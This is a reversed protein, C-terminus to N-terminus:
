HSLTLCDFSNGGTIQVVKLVHTGATLNVSVSTDGFTTISGTNTLTITGTLNNGSEDEVRVTKSTGAGGRFVLTYAKTTPVSVSYTTWEGAAIGGVYFGNSASNHATVGVGDNGRYISAAGASSTDSYAVNQGGYNYNEAEVLVSGSGAPIAWPSGSFPTNVLFTFKDIVALGQLKVTNTFGPNLPIGPILKDTYTTSDPFKPVGGPIPFATGNITLIPQPYGVGGSRFRYRVVLDCTGGLGGNVNNLTISATHNWNVAANASAKRDSLISSGTIVGDEAEYTNGTTSPTAPSAYSISSKGGANVATVTYYYTVGNDAETDNYITEFLSTAIISFGNNPQTSRRIQYYTTNANPAWQLFVNNNSPTANVQAVRAPAGTITPLSSIPATGALPITGDQAGTGSLLAVTSTGDLRWRHVGGHQNEDNLYLYTKGAGAVTMAPAFINGAAGMPIIEPCDNSTGFQGAFLGSEHFHMLQNAQSNNWFEGKYGFIINPGRSDHLAGRYQINASTDYSGDGHLPIQGPQAPSAKWNWSTTSLSLDIGGLHMGTGNSNDFFVLKNGSTITVRPGGQGNGSRPDVNLVGPATALTTAAAWQPNYSADFGTLWQQTFSNINNTVSQYRLSGDAYIFQATTEPTATARLPGTAPLEFVTRKNTTNNPALAYTRGNSLTAVSRLGEQTSRYNSPTGYSWNRVLTWSANNGELPLSYNVNFEFWKGRFCAFVRAPNNQDVTTTYHGQLYAIQDEYAPPAGATSSLQFRLMRCNMGDILWFRGDPQFSVSGADSFWYKNTTVSPDTAYGGATGLTWQPTGTLNFAKVQQSSAGDQVLLLNPQPANAPSIALAMPDTFGSITNVLTPTATNINTYHAVSTGTVVWLDDNNDFALGEPATVAFSRVVSGTTKDLLYVLNDPTVSVALLNGGPLRQAALGALGPQTGVRVGNLFTFLRAYISTGSTFDVRAGTVPNFSCVAGPQSWVDSADQTSPCAFYVRSSDAAAYNWAMSNGMNAAGTFRKILTRPATDAFSFFAPSTESYGVAYCGTNGSFALATAFSFNAHVSDGTKNDSNNGVVGEWVYNLNHALVKITYTGAPAAVGNDDLNDWTRTFTGGANFQSDSWLTRVLVGSSNYVGASTHCGRALTFTFSTAALGTRPFAALLVACIFSFYYSRLLAVPISSPKM